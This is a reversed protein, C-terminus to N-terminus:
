HTIPKIVEDMTKLLEGTAFIQYEDYLGRLEIFRHALMEAIGLEQFEGQLKEVANIRQESAELRANLRANLQPFIEMLEKLAEDSSITRSSCQTILIDFRKILIDDEAALMSM